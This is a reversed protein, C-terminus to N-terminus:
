TLYTSSMGVAALSARTGLKPEERGIDSTLTGMQGWFSQCLIKIKAATKRDPTVFRRCALFDAVSIFPWLLCTHAIYTCLTMHTAICTPVTAKNIFSRIICRLRWGLDASTLNLVFLHQFLEYVYMRICIIDYFPVGQGRAGAYPKGLSGKSTQSTWAPKVPAEQKWPQWAFNPRVTSFNLFLKKFVLYNRADGSTEEPPVVQHM